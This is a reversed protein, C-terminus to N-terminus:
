PTVIPFPLGTGADDLSGLLNQLVTRDGDIRITGAQVLSAPSTGAFLMGLFAARPMTVTAAVDGSGPVEYILVSNHLTVSVRESREPFVFAVALDKGAAKAPDVRIALLDFLQNTQTASILDLALTSRTPATPTSRAEAAGTLYMNRWLMSEAQYGMQEFSKALVERAATNAGDAFVIRSALEASWRYDGADFAKTAQRLAKRAGGLLLWM